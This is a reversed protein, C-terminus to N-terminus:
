FKQYGLNRTSPPENGINQTLKSFTQPHPKFAFVKASPFAKLAASTTEGLHAGVDFFTRITFGWGQSLRAIDRSSTCFRECLQTPGAAGFRASSSTALRLWSLSFPAAMVSVVGLGNPLTM